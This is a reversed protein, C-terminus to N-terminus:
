TNEVKAHKMVKMLVIIAVILLLIILQFAYILSFLQILIGGILAGFGISANFIAVYIASAATAQVKAITLVWTQLGVFLAAISAGWIMLFSVVQWFIFQHQIYVLGLLSLGIGVLASMLITFLYQDIWKAAVVNGILGSLGFILLLTAVQNMPLYVVNVLFPEIFTFAAFHASIILATLFFLRKLIPHYFVEKLFGKVPIVDKAIKPVYFAILFAILVAAAGMINFSFQWGQLQTVWNAFPVGLVSAVSVGSFIISTALGLKEKPVLHYAVSGILAWFGGHAIAGIVRALFITMFTQSHAVTFNSLALVFMLIILVPKRPFRVFILVSFLAAIAAIWGYGTVIFGMVAESQHFDQALTSLLGIPALETTVIMFSSFSLVILALWLRWGLPKNTVQQTTSHM